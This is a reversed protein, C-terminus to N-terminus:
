VVLFDTTTLTPAGTLTAFWVAAYGTGSGDADYYLKGLATDYVIRTSSATAGGSSVSEFASGGLAGDALATFWGNDLALRDGGSSEFDTIVDAATSGLQLASFRFTDAGDGGTLSDVGAGGDLTDIGNSGLLTDAGGLGKLVDDGDLGSLVNASVDGTLSDAFDSGTLHEINLLQDNGAGVTNQALPAVASLSGSLTFNDVRWTSGALASGTAGLSFQLTGTLGQTNASLAALATDSISHTGGPTGRTASGSDLSVGNLTLAWSAPGNGQGGNSGQEWFSIESLDLQYGSAVTLTFQFANGDGDNWGTAAVAKGAAGQGVLGSGNLGGDRATWAANGLEAPLAFAADAGPNSYSTAAADNFLYRLAVEGALAVTVGASATEYSATDSGADGDLVNDGAGSRLVNDLANGTIDATTSSAVVGNEIESGLTYSSRASYVTDTGGGTLETILDGADDLYYVDDGAGGTMTDAGNGGDLTDAGTGGDLTDDGNAGDLSAAGTGVSLWNNLANGILTATGGSSVLGNEMENELTYSALTSYVTDTGGGSLETLTDGADDVYYVDDDAGGIMTDAGSGGDLTDDGADGQLRDRGSGGALMDAGEGGNLRDAGDAGLLTDAGDGGTLVNAGANGSLRDNFASGSLNEIHLLTDSGSGGSTQAGTVALSLRVGANAYRYDATDTGGAGDLRNNGDGALLVNNLSNGTLGATSESLIRGKEVYAPLTYALATLYVTDIGGGASTEIVLDSQREVYYSDNGAGGYLTDAGAAGQLTNNQANGTLTNALANGTARRASSGALELNEVADPLSYNISARVTDQGENAAELVVDGTQDVVYRDDGQGGLLTDVGQGGDLTDNGEEGYLLDRGLLGLM